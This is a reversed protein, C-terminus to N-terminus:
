TFWKSTSLDTIIIIIINYNNNYLKIFFYIKCNQISDSSTCLNCLEGKRLQSQSMMFDEANRQTSVSELFGMRSSQPKQCCDYLGASVWLAYIQMTFASVFSCLSFEGWILQRKLEFCILDLKLTVSFKVLEPCM